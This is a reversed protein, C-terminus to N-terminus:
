LSQNRIKIEIEVPKTIPIAETKTEIVPVQSNVFDLVIVKKYLQEVSNVLTTTQQQTYHTTNEIVAIHENITKVLATIDKKILSKDM